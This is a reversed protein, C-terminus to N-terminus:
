SQSHSHQINKLRNPSVRREGPSTSPPRAATDVPAPSKRSPTPILAGLCTSMRTCNPTVRCYGPSTSPPRAATEVPASSKRSPTPTRAGLYLSISTWNPKERCYALSSSPPWTATRFPMAFGPFHERALDGLYQESGDFAGFYTKYIRTDQNPNPAPASKIERRLILNFYSVTGLM